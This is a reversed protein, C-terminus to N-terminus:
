RAPTQFIDDNVFAAFAAIIADRYTTARDLVGRTMLGFFGPGQKADEQKFLMDCADGLEHGEGLLTIIADPVQMRLTSGIGERGSRDIVVAWGSDFWRGDVSNLGGELGVGYDADRDGIARRARNAAGTAAEEDSMPQTAVGSSVASTQFEWDCEPWMLKFALRVSQAKVPNLSGIAVIV